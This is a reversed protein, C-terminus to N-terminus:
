VKPKQAWFVFALCVFTIGLTINMTLEGNDFSKIYFYTYAANLFYIVGTIAFLLASLLNTNTPPTPNVKLTKTKAKPPM